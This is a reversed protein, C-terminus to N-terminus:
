RLSARLEVEAGAVAKGTGAERVVVEVTSAPVLTLTVLSPAAGLRLRVPGAYREDATAELRYDRAILGDFAFSGDSGSEITRVPVTDIVVTAGAVGHEDADMVVGELRLDGRPDDDRATTARDPAPAEPAAPAPTSPRAASGSGTAVAPARAKGKGWWGLQRGLLAVAVVVVAIAALKLAHKM